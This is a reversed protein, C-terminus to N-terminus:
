LRLLVQDYLFYYLLCLPTNQTFLFKMLIIIKVDWKKTKQKKTKLDFMNCLEAHTVSVNLILICPFM